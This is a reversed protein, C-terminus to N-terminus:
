FEPQQIRGSDGAEAPAEKEVPTCTGPTAEIHRIRFARGYVTVCEDGNRYEVKARIAMLGDADQIKGVANFKAMEFLMPSGLVRPDNSKVDSQKVQDISACAEASTQQMIIYQVAHPYLQIGHPESAPTATKTLMPINCAVCGLLLVIPLRRMDGGMLGGDYEARDCDDSRRIAACRSNLNEANMRARSVGLLLAGVTPLFAGADGAIITV